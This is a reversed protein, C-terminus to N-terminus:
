SFYLYDSLKDFNEFKQSHYPSDSDVVYENDGLNAKNMDLSNVDDTKDQLHSFNWRDTM